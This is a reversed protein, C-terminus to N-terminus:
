RFGTWCLIDILGHTKNQARSRPMKQWLLQCGLGGATRASGRIPKATMPGTPIHQSSILHRTHIENSWWPDGSNSKPSFQTQVSVTSASLQFSLRYPLVPPSLVWCSAHSVKAPAKKQHLLLCNSTQCEAFWSDSESVTAYQLRRKKNRSISRHIMCPPQATSSASGFSEMDLPCHCFLLYMYQRNGAHSKWSHPRETQTDFGAPSCPIQAQPVLAFSKRPFRPLYWEWM